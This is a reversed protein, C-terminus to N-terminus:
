FVCAVSFQGENMQDVVNSKSYIYDRTVYVTFGTDDALNTYIIAREGLHLCFLIEIHVTLVPLM